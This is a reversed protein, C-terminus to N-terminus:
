FCAHRFLTRVNKKCEVRATMGFEGIFDVTQRKPEKDRQRETERDRQGETERDTQRETERGRQRQTEIGRERDIERNKEREIDRCAYTYKYICTNKRTYTNIYVGTFIYM